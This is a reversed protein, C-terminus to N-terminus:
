GLLIISQNGSKFESRMAASAVPITKKRPMKKACRTKRRGLHNFPTTSQTRVKGITKGGVTIPKKRNRHIAGNPGTPEKKKSFKPMLIVIVHYEATKAVLRTANGRIYRVARPANSLM